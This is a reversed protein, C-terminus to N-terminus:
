NEQRYKTTVGSIDAFHLRDVQKGPLHAASIQERKQITPTICETLPTM